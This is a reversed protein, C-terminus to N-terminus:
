NQNQTLDSPQSTRKTVEVSLETNKSSLTGTQQAATDRWLEAGFSLATLVLSFSMFIYVSTLMQQRPKPQDQDKRLLFYALAALICGLGIAGYSLLNYFSLTEM